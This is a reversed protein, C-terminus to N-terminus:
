RSAEGDLPKDPISDDAGESSDAPTEIAPAATGSPAAKADSAPAEPAPVAPTDTREPEAPTPEDTPGDAAAARSDAPLGPRKGAVFTEQDERDDLPLQRFRVKAEFQWPYDSDNAQQNVQQSTITFGASRLRDEVGAVDQPSRVQVSLDFQGGASDATARLSRLHAMQSQPFRDSLLKLQSLWDTQDELWNRVVRTEDAREQFKAAVQEARQLEGRTTALEDTLRAVDSRLTWGAVGIALAAVAAIAAWRRAPNPPVPPRKAALLNIPLRELLYDSASGFLVPEVPQWREGSTPGAGIVRANLFDALLEVDTAGIGALEAACPVLLVEFSEIPVGWDTM